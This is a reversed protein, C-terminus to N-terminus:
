VYRYWYKGQAFNASFSDRFQLRELTVPFNLLAIIKGTTVSLLRNCNQSQKHNAKHSEKVSAHSSQKKKEAM